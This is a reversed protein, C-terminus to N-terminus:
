RTGHPRSGGRSLGFSGIRRRVLPLWILGGTTQALITLLVILLGVGGGMLGPVAWLFIGLSAILAASLGFGSLEVGQGGASPVTFTNSGGNDTGGVGPGVRPGTSLPALPGTPAPTSIPSATDIPSPSITPTPTPRIVPGPTSTAAPTPRATPALTPIPTPTPTPPQGPVTITQTAPASTKIGDSVAYSFADTGSFGTDATYAFAGSIEVVLSGHLPSATVAITLPDGDDDAAGALLGPAAQSASSGSATVPPGGFLTPAADTVHITVWVPTSAVGDSIMAEFADDGAYGADPAYDFSGDAQLAVTGYTPGAFLVATVPDGDPDSAAALVGSLAPVALAHDHVVTEVIGLATPARNAVGITVTTGASSATGDFATYTFSDSGVFGPTPTYSLSGDAALALTGNAVDTVLVASLADGNADRDNALIGPAALVLATNRWTALGDSASVPTANTITMTVTATSTSIGDGASYSFSDTGAFGTDPTYTFSGDAALSLSGNAPGSVLVAALSDGDADSDNSLVGPAPVSLTGNKGLSWADDAAVPTTNTVTITVTAPASSVSGDDATYTFTDTGVFGPDPVYTYHGDSGLSVTGSTPPGAINASLRDGNSDSDNVLVGPAAVNIPADHIGSASDDAAAPAGNSVSITATATTFVVGDSAAYTFSVSGTFGADPTYTFSGDPALALVGSTPGIVVSATLSDRNPDTDNALVGTPATTTLVINKGVAFADDTATPPDNVVTIVVAASATAIGDTVDYTFGDVGVFGPNPTFTWSGDAAVTASGNAPSSALSASLLDGDPDIDNALVGPAAKTLTVNKSATAEDPAATPGTNTVTITSTATPSNLLGDSAQYTFFDVGVFGPDPAYSFSGDGPFLLTGNAPGAVLVASLPDLNADTDNTLVGPVAADLTNGAHVAGADDVAVPAVNLPNTLSIRVSFTKPQNLDSGCGPKAYANAVWSHIGPLVGLVTIGIDVADQAPSGKLRDPDSAAIATVVTPSGGFSVSWSKGTPASVIQAATVTFAPDITVKICGMVEGGSSVNKPIVEVETPIAPVVWVPSRTLQWAASAAAVSPFASGLVLAAVTFLMLPSRLASRRWAAVSM